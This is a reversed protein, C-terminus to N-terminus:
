SDSCVTWALQRKLDSFYADFDDPLMISTQQQAQQIQLGLCAEAMVQM